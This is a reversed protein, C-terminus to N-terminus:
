FDPGKKRGGMLYEYGGMDPQKPETTDPKKSPHRDQKQYGKNVPKKYPKPLSETLDHWSPRSTKMWWRDLSEGISIRYQPPISQLAAMSGQRAKDMDKVMKVYAKVPIEETPFHIYTMRRSELANWMGESAERWDAATDTEGEQRERHRMAEIGNIAACTFADSVFLSLYRLPKPIDHSAPIDLNANIAKSIYPIDAVPDYLVVWLRADHHLLGIIPAQAQMIERNYYHCSFTEAILQALLNRTEIPEANPQNPVTLLVMTPIGMFSLITQQRSYPQRYNADTIISTPRLYGYFNLIFNHFYQSPSPHYGQCSQVDGYLALYKSNEEIIRWLFPVEVASEQPVILPFPEYATEAGVPLKPRFINEIDEYKIAPFQFPLKTRRLREHLGAVEMGQRMLRLNELSYHYENRGNSLASLLQYPDGIRRGLVTERESSSPRTYRRTPTYNDQNYWVLDAESPNQVSQTFIISTNLERGESSWTDLEEKSRAGDKLLSEEQPRAEEWKTKQEARRIELRDLWNTLRDVTTEKAKAENAEEDTKREAETVVGERETAALDEAKAVNEEAPEISEKYGKGGETVGEIFAQENREWVQGLQMHKQKRDTAAKALRDGKTNFNKKELPEVSTSHEAFTEFRRFLDDLSLEDDPGSTKKEPKGHQKQNRTEKGLISDTVSAVLPDKEIQNPLGFDLISSIPALNNSYQIGAPDKNVSNEAQDSPAAEKTNVKDEANKQKKKKKKKDKSPKKLESDKTEPERVEIENQQLEPHAVQSELEAEQSRPKSKLQKPKTKKSKPETEQSQLKAGSAQPKPDDDPFAGVVEDIALSWGEDEAPPKESTKGPLDKSSKDWKSSKSRLDTIRPGRPFTNGDGIQERDVSPAFEPKRKPRPKKKSASPPHPGPRPGPRSPSPDGAPEFTSQPAPPSATTFLRASPLSLVHVPQLKRLPFKYTLARISVSSSAM